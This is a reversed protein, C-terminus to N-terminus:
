EKKNDKNIEPLKYLQHSKNYSRLYKKDSKLGFTSLMGSIQMKILYNFVFKHPDREAYMMTQKHKSNPLILNAAFTKLKTGVHWGSDDKDVFKVKLNDYNFNMTGTAAYHNGSWSSYLNESDGSTIDVLAMPRSINSLDKLDIDSFHANAKFGALSDVYSERYSFREINAKFLNGSLHLDLSDKRNEQNSLNTMVGTLSSFPIESWKKSKKELENYVVSNNRLSITDVSFPFKISSILQTPMLKKRKPRPPLNKDRSVILHVGNLHINKFSFAHDSSIKGLKEVLFTASDGKMELYNDQFESTKFFMERSLAPQLNFNAIKFEKKISNWGYNKIGAEINTDSYFLEGGAIDTKGIIRKIDIKNKSTWSFGDDKFSGSNGNAQVRTSDKQFKVALDFWNVALGSSITIADDKRFVNGKKAHLALQPVTLNLRQDAFNSNEMRFVIDDYKLIHSIDTSNELNQAELNLTSNLKIADKDKSYSLKLNKISATQIKFLLNASQGSPSSNGSKSHFDISGADVFVSKLDVLNRKSSNLRGIVKISPLFIRQSGKESESVFSINQISGVNSKFHISEINGNSSAGSIKFNSINLDLDKWIFYDKHARLDKIYIGDGLFGLQSRASRSTFMVQDVKLKDVRIDPLNKKPHSSKKQHDNELGIIMNKIYLSDVKIVKSRQFLDWDFARWYINHATISNKNQSFNIKGAWNQRNVGAFKYHRLNLLFKNSRLDVEAIELHHISHKIDVLSDSNFTKNLIIKANLHKAQLSLDSKIPGHYNIAGDKVILQDVNIMQKLQHLTLYFGTNKKDKKFAGLKSNKSTNLHRNDIVIMPKLLEAQGAVLRKKLLAELNVNKLILAPASFVMSRQIKNKTVPRYEVNRFIIDNNKFAFEEITIKNLSDKSFFAIKKVQFHVSDVTIKPEQDSRFSLNHVILDATKGASNKMTGDSRKQQVSANVIEFFKINILKFIATKVKDNQAVSKKSRSKNDFLTIVPNICRVTDLLLEEKQYTAPLHKSNFTFKDATFQTQANNDTGKQHVMLSDVNFYQNESNFNLASFAVTLNRDPITISQKGISLKIHDSGLLHKDDNNVKVFNKLSLSINKLDLSKKDGEKFSISADKVSLNKLNFSQQTKELFSLIESPRFETKKKTRQLSTYINIEPRIIELSDVLIKNKFILARWSTLSFKLKSLKVNYYTDAKDTDQCILRSKKLVLSKSWLSVTATGADFAYKGNTQSQVIYKVSEKFRHIVIFYLLGMILVVIGISAFIFYKIKRRVVKSRM